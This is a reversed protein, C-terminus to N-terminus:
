ESRSAVTSSRNCVLSNFTVELDKALEVGEMDDWHSSIDVVLGLVKCM